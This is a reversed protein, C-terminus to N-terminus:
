MRALFYIMETGFYDLLRWFGAFDPTNSWHLIAAFKKDNQADNGAHHLCNLVSETGM